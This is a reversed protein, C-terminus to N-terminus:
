QVIITLLIPSCGWAVYVIKICCNNMFIAACCLSRFAYIYRYVLIVGWLGYPKSASFVNNSLVNWLNLKFMPCHYRIMSSLGFSFLSLNFIHLSHICDSKGITVNLFLTLVWCRSKWCLLCKWFYFLICLCISWSTPLM